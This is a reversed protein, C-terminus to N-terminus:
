SRRSVFSGNDLRQDKPVEGVYRIPGGPNQPILRTEPYPGLWKLTREIGETLPVNQDVPQFTVRRIRYGDGLSQAPNTPDVEHVTEPRSADTFTVLMPYDKVEFDIPARLNRAAPYVDRVARTASERGAQRMAQPYNLVNIVIEQMSRRYDPDHLLAFLVKGGGLDVMPAQGVTRHSGSQEPLSFASSALHVNELVASGKALGHPTDVEVTIRYRLSTRPRACGTLLAIACLAALGIAYRCLM